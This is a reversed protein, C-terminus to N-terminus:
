PPIPHRPPPAPSSISPVTPRPSETPVPTAEDETVAPAAIQVAVVFTPAAAPAPFFSLRPPETQFVSPLAAPVITEAFERAPQIAEQVVQGAPTLMVGTVIAVGALGSAGIYTM